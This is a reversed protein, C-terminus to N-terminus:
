KTIENMNINSSNLKSVPITIKNKKMNIEGSDDDSEGIQVILPNDTDNLQILSPYLLKVSKGPLIKNDYNNSADVYENYLDTDDDSATADPGDQVEVDDISSGNSQNFKLINGDQIEDVDISEKSTNKVNLEVLYVTSGKHADSGSGQVTSKQFNSIEIEGKDPYVAKNGDFHTQTKELSAQQKKTLGDKNTSEKKSSTQESKSSNNSNSSCASLTLATLMTVGITFMKRVTFIGGM